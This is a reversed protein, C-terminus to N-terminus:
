ATALAVVASAPAEIRGEADMFPSLTQRTAARVAEVADGSLEAVVGAIPAALDMTEAWYDDFSPYRQAFAVHDTRVSTFGASRLRSELDVPDHLRFPSPASPDPPALAGHSVLAVVPATMWLNRDPRDWTALALRGGPRLAERTHRLAADPDGMLM